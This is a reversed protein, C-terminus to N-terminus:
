LSTPLTATLNECGMETVLIDDEIRVGIGEEAIYIGPEVTLVMGPQFTDYDGLSEHVDIGLGHSIAHPFYKRFAKHDDRKELLGVEQLADKMIEDSKRQYEQLTLGPKICAIIRRQAKQVARHIEQQRDSPEGLAYTRTIDTAYGKYRIGVDILVLETRRLPATNHTYHLTCAHVGCAVIPDYAHSSGQERAFLYDLEAQIEYEHQLTPLQKKVHAFARVTAVVAQRIIALEAPQKIARLRHLLPRCDKVRDFIRKLEKRLTAQAPNQAFEYYKAHPHDDLTHVISHRQALETIKKVGEAKTLIGDVGSTRLAEEDTLDGEFLARSEGISPRVLWSKKQDVDIILRWDAAEIGTLWWFNAEQEFRFAADNSRQLQTYATLIIAGSEFENVFSRRNGRFFGSDM